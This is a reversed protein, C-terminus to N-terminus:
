RRTPPRTTARRACMAACAHAGRPSPARVKWYRSKENALGEKVEATAAKARELEAVYRRQEERARDAAASEASEVLERM